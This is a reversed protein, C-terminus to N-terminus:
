LRVNDEPEKNHRPHAEQRNAPEVQIITTDADNSHRNSPGTQDFKVFIDFVAPKKSSSSESASRSMDLRNILTATPSRYRTYEKNEFWSPVEHMPRSASSGQGVSGDEALNEDGRKWPLVAEAETLVKRDKQPDRQSATRAVFTIGEEDELNSNFDKNYRGLQQHPGEEITEPQNFHSHSKTRQGLGGGGGGGGYGARVGGRRYGGSMQTEDSSVSSDQDKLVFDVMEVDICCCLTVEGAASSLGEPLSRKSFTDDITGISKSLLEVANGCYSDFSSSRSLKMQSRSQDGCLTLRHSHKTLQQQRQQQRRLNRKRAEESMVRRAHLRIEHHLPNAGSVSHGRDSPSRQEDRWRIYRSKPKALADKLVHHLEAEQIDKGSPSWHLENMDYNLDTARDGVPIGGFSDNRPLGPGGFSGSANLNSQTYTRVISSLSMGNEKSMALTNLMSNNKKVINVADAMTLKSCTELIKPERVRDDNLLIPRIWRNNFHKFKDRLKYNGMFMGTIDEIGAMLHDFLRTHLRENMSIRTSDKTPVNLLRVLPGITMGQCFVTFYIVAITTTVFMRKQPVVEEDVVLVLAFAVAGRLGGYSMIFQDVKNLKHLRYRNLPWTCIIVGLTRFVSILLITLCIFQTNWEHMDNVTTVGLFLFIITESCNAIMKMGYKITTHSKQSVNEEVYNKMTMGCCTLSLIGSLKFMEALLYALYGFLFIFLPEVPRVHHTFRSTFAAILGLLIGVGVGGLAVVFFSIIGKIAEVATVNEIGLISYTEFMRYLVVTVADNLLSEGFVIIYLLDNVHIEEFVALVAVPDVAAIISAFLFCELIGIPTPGYFETLGVGWHCLGVTLANWVTAVVAYMLITGLNDFFSRNPMFYGADLIIPPLMYTFFVTPTLPNNFEQVGAYHFLLGIIVGIVILICSEPCIQHLKPTLHFGIKALGAIIIWVVIIFPASVHEFDIAAIIFTKPREHHGARHGGNHNNSSITSHLPTVQPDSNTPQVMGTHAHEDPITTDRTRHNSATLGSQGSASVQNLHFVAFVLFLVVGHRTVVSEPIRRGYCSTYLCGM